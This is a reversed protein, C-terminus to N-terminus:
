RVDKFSIWLIAIYCANICINIFLWKNNPIYLIFWLACTTGWHEFKFKREEKDADIEIM